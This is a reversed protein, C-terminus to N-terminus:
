RPLGVVNRNILWKRLQGGSVTQGSAERTSCAPGQM